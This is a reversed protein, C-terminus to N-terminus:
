KKRRKDYKKCWLDVLYSIIDDFSMVKKSKPELWSKILLLNDYSNQSLRLFKPKPM